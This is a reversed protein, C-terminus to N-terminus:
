CFCAAVQEVVVVVVVEEKGKGRGGLGLLVFIFKCPRPTWRKSGWEFIGGFFFDLSGEPGRIWTHYM